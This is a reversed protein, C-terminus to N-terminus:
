VENRNQPTLFEIFKVIIKSADGNHNQFKFNKILDDVLSVTKCSSFTHDVSGMYKRNAIIQWNGGFYLRSSM